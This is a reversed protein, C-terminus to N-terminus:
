QVVVEIPDKSLLTAIELPLQIMEAPIAKKVQLTKIVIDQQQIEIRCNKMPKKVRLSIRCDKNGSIKQPITYNVNAAPRIDIECHPLAGEQIYRAVSEALAEAELSVFDVLDHVQLVNGAAFVGEVSTQYNEDM